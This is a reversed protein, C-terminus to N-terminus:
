GMGMTNFVVPQLFFGHSGWGLGTFTLLAGSFGGFEPGRGWDLPGSQCIAVGIAWITELPM